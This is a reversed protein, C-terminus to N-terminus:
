NDDLKTFLFTPILRINDLLSLVLLLREIGLGLGCCPPLGFRLAKIFSNDSRVVEQNGQDLLSEQQKFNEEQIFPDTLEECAKLIELGGGKKLTMLVQFQNSFRNDEENPKSLPSRLYNYVLIPGKLKKLSVKKYLNEIASSYDLIGDINIEFNKSLEIAKDYTDIYDIDINDRKLFDKFSIKEINSYDINNIILNSSYVKRIIDKIFDLCFDMYGEYKAYATYSEVMTFEQLHKDDIGENRFKRAIEFLKPVGAVLLKKLYLEPAIRLYADANLSEYYTKFPAAATGSAINQLIPTNVEMFDRTTFFDRIAKITNELYYFTERSKESIIINIYKYKARLDPDSYEKNPLEELCKTLVRAKTISLTKENTKSFIVKGEVEVIDGIRLEKIIEEYNENKIDICLQVKSEINNITYFCIKGMTRRAIIRGMLIVEENEKTKIFDKLEM